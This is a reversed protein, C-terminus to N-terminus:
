IEHEKIKKQNSLISLILYLIIIIPISWVFLTPILILCLGLFIFRIQNNKWKFDKFKLAFLPIESILLLSMVIIIPIFVEPQIIKFIFNNPTKTTISVLFLLPFTTFFLTNAPTPLGIFSEAQRTDLNFKALRFISFFPIILGTFPILTKLLPQNDIRSFFGIVKVLVVGKVDSFNQYIDKDITQHFIEQHNDTGIILMVFCLIGPAVGFTVMDALSDLQKGMEGAIKLKRALFGDFFDFIAGLFIAYCAWDLRGMLAFIISVVGCLLNSSTFLNPINFLGKM